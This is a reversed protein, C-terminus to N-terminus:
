DVGKGIARMSKQMSQCYTIVNQKTFTATLECETIQTQTTEKFSFIPLKSNSINQAGKWNTEKTQKHVAM